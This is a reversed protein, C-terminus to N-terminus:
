DYIPNLQVCGEIIVQGDDQYSQFVTSFSSFNCTMWGNEMLMELLLAAELDSVRDRHSCSCCKPVRHENIRLTGIVVAASSM